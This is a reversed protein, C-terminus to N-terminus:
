RHSPSSLRPSTGDDFTTRSKIVKPVNRAGVEQANQVANALRVGDIECLNEFDVFGM